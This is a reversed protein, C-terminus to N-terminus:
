EQKRRKGTMVYKSYRKDGQKEILGELVLRRLLSKVGDASLGTVARAIANTIFPNKELYSLVAKRTGIPTEIPTRDTSIPASDTRAEIVPRYFVVTVFSTFHFEIPKLGAEEMMNQMRQIGTGMKEIYRVRQFLNAINPNRLVSRKGFDEPRLGKVLGGPSSIEIRDDFIEVMVNAGKEFYDRHVVANIVAERLAEYPIEPIERRRPAGTFEYRVPIHQKLFNMTQDVTSVIDENFDRRDLVTHKGIGKYLAGTVVTHPYIDALDKAFFLAGTNSIHLTGGQKEAVGLNKLIIPTDVVKSIGALKLFRSLKREDFHEEYSFQRCVMEDFRVKGESKVLEIIEDRGLKQSNPGTRNYFGGSCKYPKNDGERVHVILINEFEEIHIPIAPECNNALDQIQSKLKNTIDLGKMKGADTVGLFIRGGSANAFAVLEKDLNAPFSEKFEIRYGEGEQLILGMEGKTIM